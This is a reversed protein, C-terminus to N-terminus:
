TTNVNANGLSRELLLQEKALRGKATELRIWRYIHNIRREGMPPTGLRNELNRIAWLLDVREKSKASEEAWSKIVDIKSQFRSFDEMKLGFYNTVSHYIPDYKEWELPSASNINSQKDLITEIEQSETKPDKGILDPM